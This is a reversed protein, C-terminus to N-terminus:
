PINSIINGSTESFVWGRQRTSIIVIMFEYKKSKGLAMSQKFNKEPEKWVMIEKRFDWCIVWWSTSITRLTMFFMKFDPIEFYSRTKSSTDMMSSMAFCIFVLDRM